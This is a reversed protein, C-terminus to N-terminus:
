IYIGLDTKGCLKRRARHLESFGIASGLAKILYSSTGSTQKM